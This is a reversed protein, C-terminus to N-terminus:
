IPFLMNNKLKDVTLTEGYDKLLFFVRNKHQSSSFSLDYIGDFKDCQKVIEEAEEKTDAELFCKFQTGILSYVTQTHQM